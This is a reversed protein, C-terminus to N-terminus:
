PTQGPVRRRDDKRRGMLDIIAVVLALALFGGVALMGFGFADQFVVFEPLQGTERFITAYFLALGIATGVATGIRQGLQSVSGALGGQTVPIEALMLTQNPALVFGSAFGAFTMVAGMVWAVAGSPVFFAVLVM